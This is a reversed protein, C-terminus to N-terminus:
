KKLLKKQFIQETDTKVELVYMGKAVFTPIRILLSHGGIGLQETTSYVERGTFDVLRIRVNEATKLRIQVNIDKDFPNPVVKIDLDKLDLMIVGSYTYSGGKQNVKLRYFRKSSFAHEVDTFQYSNAANTNAKSAVKGATVFSTGNESYEIEYNAVNEDGNMTWSLVSKDDVLSGKFKLNTLPLIGDSYFCTPTQGVNTPDSSNVFMINGDMDLLTIRSQNCVEKNPETKVRFKVVAAYAPTPRVIGPDEGDTNVLRGGSVAYPMVAGVDAVPHGNLTTSNALYITSPPIYDYMYVGAANINGINTVTITYEVTDGGVVTPSGNINAYTKDAIISSALVPFGCATYDGSEYVNNSNTNIKTPLMTSLNVRWVDRYAGNIYVNGAADIAISQTPDDFPDPYNNVTGMFTAIRNNPNIKYMNGSNAILYLRSSGDAFLDGGVESLVNRSGNTSANVLTGLPVINPVGPVGPAGGTISFRILDKGNSTLAYCFGDSGMGMRNVNWGTGTTPELYYGTYRYAVRPSVSMDIYCLNPRNNSNNVFFIRQTVKDYAIAASGNLLDPDSFGNPLNVTPNFADRITGNRGDYELTGAQGKNSGTTTMRRVFSYSTVGSSPDPDETTVQYVINCAADVTLNTFVTNTAQITAVGGQTADLTANNFISGGNATVRVRFEITATANPALIGPGYTISNIYGGSGSFPMIGGARDPVAFTNMKTSGAIYSTGAPINDYLKSAIFNQSSLNRATITYLLEDTQKAITGDGGVTPNSVTKVFDLVAQAQVGAKFGFLLLTLLLARLPYFKFNM